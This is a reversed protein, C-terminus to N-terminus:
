NFQIFWESLGNINLVYCAHGFGGNFGRNRVYGVFDDVSHKLEFLQKM